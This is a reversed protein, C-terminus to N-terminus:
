PATAESLYVIVHTAQQLVYTLLLPLLLLRPREASCQQESLGHTVDDRHQAEVLTLRM